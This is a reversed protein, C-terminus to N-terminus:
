FTLDQLKSHLYTSISVYHGAKRLKLLHLIDADDLVIIYDQRANLRDKCSLIMRGKNEIKRCVVLGFHGRTDSLRGVLQDLEANGIDERYNKCEIMIYPCFIHHVSSLDGFFGQSQRNNAVIDIRKRGENLEKEKMFMHLQPYFVAELAGLVVEHFDSADTPGPKVSKLKAIISDIDVLKRQKQTEEILEDTLAHNKTAAETKYQTLVEPHENSFEFLYDKSLPYRQKLEKKTIVPPAKRLLDVLGYSTQSHEAQLFDLVHHRYYEDHQLGLHYRVAAKPILLIRRGDVIPLDAYGNMWNSSGEDWCFGGQVNRVPIKLQKCQQRTYQLLKPRILNITMDSINDKGIGPIFLDCDALDQLWGTQVAKSTALRGYLQAAKNKGIGSGAPEGRSFGLHAENAEGVHGLMRMAETRNGAGIESILRQFFRVVVDNCSQFWPSKEVVFAFPDCFLAIDTDVPVDIFDLEAQNRGLKFHDSFRDTM